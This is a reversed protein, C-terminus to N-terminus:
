QRFDALGKTPAVMRSNKVCAAFDLLQHLSILRNCAIMGQQCLNKASSGHNNEYTHGFFGTCSCGPKNHIVRQCNKVLSGGLNNQACQEGAVPLSGVTSASM